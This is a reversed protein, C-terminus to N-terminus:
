DKITFGHYLIYKSPIRHYKWVKHRQAIARQNYVGNHKALMLVSIFCHFEDM